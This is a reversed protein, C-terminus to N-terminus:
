SVQTEQQRRWYEATSTDRRSLISEQSIATHDREGRQDVDMRQRTQFRGRSRGSSLSATRSGHDGTWCRMVNLQSSGSMTRRMDSGCRKQPGCIGDKRIPTRIWRKQFVQFYVGQWVRGGQFTATMAQGSDTFGAQDLTYAKRLEPNERQLHEWVTEITHGPTINQCVYNRFEGSIQAVDFSVKYLLAIMEIAGNPWIQSSSIDLNGPVIKFRGLDPLERRERLQAWVRDRGARWPSLVEGSQWNEGDLEVIFSRRRWAEKKAGDYIRTEQTAIIIEQGSKWPQPTYTCQTPRPMDFGLEQRLDAFLRNPDGSADFRIQEVIFTRDPADYRVMLKLRTDAEDEYEQLMQYKGGNELWFPKGDVRRLRVQEWPPLKLQRSIKAAVDGISDPGAVKVDFTKQGDRLVKITM